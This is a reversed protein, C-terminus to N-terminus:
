YTIKKQIPPLKVTELIKTIKKATDGNDYPNKGKRIKNIIKKVHNYYESIVSETEGILEVKGNEIWM